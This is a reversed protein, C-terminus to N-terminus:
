RAPRIKLNAFAGERSDVFLGVGGKAGRDLRNVVLCPATAEDVLVSVRSPAVEVKAHFWADPDPVPDVPHEYVGPTKARLAEWTHEPWSVYQVARGRHEPDDPRFNFPRFYVAEFRKADAVDFAVGLFIRQQGEGKLDVEISGEGFDVGAVLALAVNSGPGDGGIPALRLVSRGGEVSTRVEANTLHWLASDGVRALDPAIPRPDTCAALFPALLWVSRM